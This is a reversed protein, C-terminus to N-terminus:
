FGMELYTAENQHRRTVVCFLHLSLRLKPSKRHNQKYNEMFSCIATRIEALDARQKSICSDADNAWLKSFSADRGSMNICKFGFVYKM